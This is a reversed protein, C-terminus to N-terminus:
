TEVAGGFAGFARRHLALWTTTKQDYAVEACRENAAANLISDGCASRTCDANCFPTDEGEDGREGAAPHFTQDGCEVFICDADCTLSAGATDCEEDQDVYRNGCIERSIRNSSCGDGSENNGDDCAEGLDRRGDGCYELLQG